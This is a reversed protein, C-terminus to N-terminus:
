SLSFPSTTPTYLYQDLQNLSTMIIDNLQASGPFPYKEYVELPSPTLIKSNKTDKLEEVIYAALLSSSSSVTHDPPFLTKIQKNMIKKFLYLLEYPYEIDPCNALKELGYLILVIVCSSLSASSTWGTGDRACNRKLIYILVRSTNKALEVLEERLSQLVSNAIPNDNIKESCGESRSLSTKFRPHLLSASIFNNLMHVALFPFLTTAPLKKESYKTCAAPDFPDDCLRYEAPLSKWWDLVIPKYALIDELFLECSEGFFTSNIKGLLVSVHPTCVLRILHNYFRIYDKTVQLEDDLIVLEIFNCGNKVRYDMRSEFFIDFTRNSMELSLRHREYLANDVVTMEGKHYPGNLFEDCILLAVTTLRRAEIYNLTVDMLYVQLFSTTMVIELGYQVPDDYMEFLIQKCRYCCLEALMRREMTSYRTVQPLSVLADVCMSLIVPNTLPDRLENYYKQFTPIHLFGNYPIKHELYLPVLYEIVSRYDMLPCSFGDSEINDGGNQSTRSSRDDNNSTQHQYHKKTYSLARQKQIANRQIVVSSIIPISFSRSEFLISTNKNNFLDSFPSLYRLSAETYMKMEDISQITTRLRLYGNVISLQWEHQENSPKSLFHYETSATTMSEMKQLELELQQVDHIWDEVQEEGDQPMLEEHERAIKKEDTPVCEIDLKTCRNCKTENEEWVCKRRRLRCVRCPSTPQM